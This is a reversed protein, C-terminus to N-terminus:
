EHRKKRAVGLGALIGSLSLALSGLLSMNSDKDGTQPLQKHNNVTAVKINSTKKTSAIKPTLNTIAVNNVDLSDAYAVQSSFLTHHRNGMATNAVTSTPIDIAHGTKKTGVFVESTKNPTNASHISHTSTANNNDKVWKVDTTTVVKEDNKLIDNFQELKKQADIYAQQAKILADM